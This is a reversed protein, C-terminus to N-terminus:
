EPKPIISGIFEGAYNPDKFFSMILEDFALTQSFAISLEDSKEFRMGDSSKRGYAKMLIMKFIRYIEKNDEEKTVRNIMEVLGGKESVELEIVESKMLNFYFDQTQEVGDFNKFVITKKLM